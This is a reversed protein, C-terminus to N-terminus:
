QSTNFLYWNDWALWIAILSEKQIHVQAQVTRGILILQDSGKKFPTHFSNQFHGM